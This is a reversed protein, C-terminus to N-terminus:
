KGWKQRIRKVAEEVNEREGFASLRFYGEGSPGFGSGPTGVVFCENLLKDFFDWSTMGEPTKLWIYPANVGGYCTIGAEQLGERIIRANEMYYAIIEQVQAWGEDSYVAAAAKQVPYSVGNFKTCQRRNWLQNLSVKEGDATSAMLDHPVVTLGCRVGTFGATKSFSRFEIACKKAGDIEYISHPIGPETIFAEYAADFLIVADNDLAYDVWSKLVEKTAVTGTPNNPFCLYIIDVKESPFAPAFGNEETCPMYVIGEYYGKEDAKGTRGVMVNTDNYVPYVPDGIAVKCSLDFIDLINASDCKSGDSIFVESAELEVGLPKYAKDIITQSLWSYGQEPGYGHFSAGKALDDVGDHFAKLVAPVLPKTVDGIGLRIVKDNPHADAFATVRRSIEPFLYGAQLKLYNDNLRAM